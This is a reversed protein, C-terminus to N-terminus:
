SWDQLEMKHFYDYLFHVFSKHVFTGLLMASHGAILSFNIM